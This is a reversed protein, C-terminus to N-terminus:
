LSLVFEAYSQYEKTIAQWLVASSMSLAQEPQANEEAQKMEQYLKSIYCIARESPCRRVSLYGGLNEQEYFPTVNVFTWYYSDDAAQDIFYGFFEQEANLHEELLNYIGKPMASHRILSHSKGLLQDRRYGTFTCFASNAYTINNSADTQTVLFDNEQM